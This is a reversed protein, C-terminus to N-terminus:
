FRRIFFAAVRRCWRLAIPEKRYESVSLPRYATTQGPDPLVLKKSSVLHLVEELHWKKM